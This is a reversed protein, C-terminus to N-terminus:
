AKKIEETTVAAAPSPEPVVPQTEPVPAEEVLPGWGFV